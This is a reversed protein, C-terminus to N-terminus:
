SVKSSRLLARAMCMLQREGVSFNEGNEVVPALLKLPLNGITDKLHSRELATWLEDDSYKDFPDLNYRFVFVTFIWSNYIFISNLFFFVHLKEQLASM